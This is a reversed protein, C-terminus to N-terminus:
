YRYNASTPTPRTMANYAGMGAAGAGLAGGGIATYKLANQQAESLAGKPGFSGKAGEWAGKARAGIRGFLGAGAAETAEASLPTNAKQAVQVADARAAANAESVAKSGGKRAQGMLRGFGTYADGVFDAARSAWNAQKISADELGQLFFHENNM